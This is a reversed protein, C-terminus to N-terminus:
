MAWEYTVLEYTVWEYMAEKAPDMVMNVVSIRNEV